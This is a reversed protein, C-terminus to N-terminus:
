NQTVSSVAGFRYNLGIRFTQDRVASAPSTTNRPTLPGPSRFTESLSGVIPAKTYVPAPIDAADAAPSAALALMAIAGLVLSKM